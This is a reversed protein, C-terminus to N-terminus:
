LAAGQDLSGSASDGSSSSGSSTDSSSSDGGSHDANSATVASDNSTSSVDSVSESSSSSSDSGSAADRKSKMDSELQAKTRKKYDDQPVYTREGGNSVHYTLTQGNDLFVVADINKGYESGPDNFRYVARQDGTQKSYDGKELLNGDSDYLSVGDIQGNLKTPLLIALNGDSAEHKWTFRVQKESSAGDAAVENTAVDSGIAGDLPREANAISSGSAIMYGPTTGVNSPIDLARAELSLTGANIQDLVQKVKFMAEEMSSVASTDGRGDYLCDLNDDLQASSFAEANIMEAKDLDIKGEDVTAQLAAKAVDELPVYGDERAMSLSLEQVKQDYFTAAEPNEANLRESIIGAFLEEENVEQQGTKGLSKMLYAAFDDKAGEQSQVQETSGTQTSDTPKVAVQSASNAETISKTEIANM